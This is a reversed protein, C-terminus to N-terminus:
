VVGIAFERVLDIFRGSQELYAFHGAGEFIVVKSKVIYKNLRRCMYLPTEYDENGWIILTPVIIKKATDSLDENVINVFTKKMAGYLKRYDPSGCRDNGLRLAKRLKYILVKCYYKIGRVPRIGASDTLILGSIRACEAALKLAIRGGFSHGIVIVEDMNYHKILSLVGHVYYDLNVPYQPPPTKGFGYLDVATVTFHDALSDIAKRFSDISGGWGHLFLM